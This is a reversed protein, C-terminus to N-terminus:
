RVGLLLEITLQDIRELGPGRRRLADIDFEFSKLKEANETSYRGLSALERDEVRYNALAEQIEPDADFREVKEKMILYSKMCGRAFEWVGEEDETRLAHADFHRPGDYGGKELLQVTFFASKQNEAAFRLDQDFRAMKQDNLDVHFLKGADLAQALAHPFSLGAMLEHAFEPNVGVMEPKDLTAIFGLMSGVTPFFLDGRPENPKPELAFRYGYGQDESYACLFDLADRFWGLSDLLKGAGDVESGERGGWFVYTRAGLEAGLDMARMTKQMAYARVRADASTFAGDKFAPDGFLNTTAMPVVLGNDSLAQKFERVIRDREGAGVGAPVLDNDHLNVGWAGLEALKEVVRVPALPSRTPEGFPDRGINGVTWLGFTFKHEPSPQYNSSM